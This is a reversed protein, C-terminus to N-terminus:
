PTSNGPELDANEAADEGILALPQRHLVPVPLGARGLIQPASKLSKVLWSARVQRLDRAGLGRDLGRAQQRLSLDYCSIAAAVSINFSEVFGSMPIRFFGDARAIAEPSLGLLENGFVLAVPGEIPVQHVDVAEGHLTSAWIRYGRARLADYAARASSWRHVELWKHAGKSIKRSIKFRGQEPEIVHVEFFGFAEASRLVAAGNHENAIDELVLVVSRSRTSLAADLKARRTPTLYPELTEIIRDLLAPDLTSAEVESSM